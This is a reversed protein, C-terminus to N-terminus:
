LLIIRPDAGLFLIVTFLFGLFFNKELDQSIIPANAGRNIRTYYLM